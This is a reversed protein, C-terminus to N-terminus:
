KTLVFIAERAFLNPCLGVQRNNGLYHAALIKLGKANAYERFDWISLFHLNPTSYWKYPLSPTVPVKGFFFMQCRAQWHLFNPFGVIIKKGVRLAEDIVFDVRKVQQLSQNLIVYDFSRDPYESLGSDIDRHTVSLGKEVCKFIAEDDVEIGEVRARKETALLFLLDGTGCGLDLVRAGTEVIGAIIRHDLRVQNDTM